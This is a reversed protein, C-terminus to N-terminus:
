EGPESNKDFEVSVTMPQGMPGLDATSFANKRGDFALLAGKLEPKLQRVKGEVQDWLRRSIAPPVEPDIVVDYQFAKVNAIATIPFINATVTIERGARREGRSLVPRSPNESFKGGPALEITGSM